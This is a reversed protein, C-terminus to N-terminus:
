IICSIVYVACTAMGSRCTRLELSSIIGEPVMQRGTSIGDHYWVHGSESIFRSTFHNDLHYMVGRLKYTTCDGNVTTIVISELLSIQHQSLDFAIIAPTDEFVHQRIIHSQCVHCRSACEISQNDVFEQIDHCQRLVTIQCSSAALDARHLTHNNPCRLSSSTVSRNMALLYDLIYQIGTYRGWPFTAPDARQLRRRMTDRVEELTYAADQLRTQSFGDVIKGLYENNIDKFQVARETANDQWINYLISLVADFVCSNNSWQLGILNNILAHCDATDSCELVNRYQFKRATRAM